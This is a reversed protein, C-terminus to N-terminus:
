CGTSPTSPELSAPRAFISPQGSKARGDHNKMLWPPSAFQGHRQGRKGKERGFDQRETLWARAFCFAPGPAVGLGQGDARCDPECACTRPCQIRVVSAPQSARVAALLQWGVCGSVIGCRSHALFSEPKRTRRSTADVASLGDWDGLSARGSRALRRTTDKEGEGMRRTPSSRVHTRRRPSCYSQV